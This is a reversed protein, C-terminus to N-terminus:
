VYSTRPKRVLFVREGLLNYVQSGENLVMRVCRFHAGTSSGDVADGAIEARSICLVRM